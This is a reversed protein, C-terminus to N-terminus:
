SLIKRSPYNATITRIWILFYTCWFHREPQKVLTDASFCSRGNLQLDPGEKERFHGGAHASNPALLWEGERPAQHEQRCSETWTGKKVNNQLNVAEHFDFHLVALFCLRQRTLTHQNSTKEKWLWCIDNDGLRRKRILRSVNLEFTGMWLCLSNCTM